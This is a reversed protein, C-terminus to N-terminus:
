RRRDYSSCCNCSRRLSTCLMTKFECTLSNWTKSFYMAYNQIWLTFSKVFLLGSLNSVFTRRFAKLKYLHFAAVITRAMHGFYRRLSWHGCFFFFLFLFRSQVHVALHLLKLSEARPWGWQVNWPSVIIAGAAREFNSVRFSFLSISQTLWRVFSITLRWISIIVLIPASKLEFLNVTRRWASWRWLNPSPPSVLLRLSRLRSVTLAIELSPALGLPNYSSSCADFEDELIGESSRLM